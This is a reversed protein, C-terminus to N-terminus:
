KIRRDRVDVLPSTRLKRPVPPTVSTPAPRQTSGARADRDSGGTRGARQSNSRRGDPTASDTSSSRRSLRRSMLWRAEVVGMKRCGTTCYDRLQADNMSRALGLDHGFQPSIIGAAVRLLRAIAFCSLSELIDRGLLHIVMGGLPFPTTCYVHLLSLPRPPM